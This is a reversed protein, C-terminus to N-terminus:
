EIDILGQVTDVVQWLTENDMYEVVTYDRQRIDIAKVQDCMVYGITKTATLKIHAASRRYTRTIPCVITMNSALNHSANNIVVVPRYGAQEHGLTPDLNTKIIAGQKLM